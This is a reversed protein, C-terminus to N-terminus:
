KNSEQSIVESTDFGNEKLICTSIVCGEQNYVQIKDGKCWLSPTTTFEQFEKWSLRALINGYGDTEKTTKGVTKQKTKM